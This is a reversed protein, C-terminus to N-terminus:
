IRDLYRAGQAKTDQARIRSTACLVAILVLNGWAIAKVIKRNM